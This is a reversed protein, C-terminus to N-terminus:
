KTHEELIRLTAFPNVNRLLFEVTSIRMRGDATGWGTAACVAKLSARPSLGAVSLLNLFTDAMKPQFNLGFVEVHLRMVAATAKVVSISGGSGFVRTIQQASLPFVETGENVQQNRRALMQATWGRNSAYAALQEGITQRKDNPDAVPPVFSEDDPADDEVVAPAAKEVPLPGPVIQAKRM